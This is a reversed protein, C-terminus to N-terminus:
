KLPERPRPGTDVVVGQNDMRLTPRDEDYCLLYGDIRHGGPLRGSSENQHRLISQSALEIVCELPQGRAEEVLPLKRRADLAGRSMLNMGKGAEEAEDSEVRLWPRYVAAEAQLHDIIADIRLESAQQDMGLSDCLVLVFSRSDHIFDYEGSALDLWPDDLVKQLRFLHSDKVPKYGMKSLLDEPSATGARKRIEDRLQM